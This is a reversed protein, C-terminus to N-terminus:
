EARLLALLTALTLAGLINHAVAPLLALYGSILAVGLAAQVLALLTLVIGARAGSRWAAMGIGALLAAVMMGGGGHAQCLLNESCGVPPRRATLVAGLSVQLLVLGLGASAAFRVGAPQAGGRGALALRSALAFMAFGALLNGMVVWPERSDGAFRGLVALFLALSLLGLAGRGERVLTPQRALAIMMLAIVLLLAAVASFRHAVRAALVPQSDQQALVETPMRARLVHCQPWPECGVGSRSLRIFASLSTIALVLAACGWALRRLWTRRQEIADM